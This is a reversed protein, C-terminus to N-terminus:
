ELCLRLCADGILTKITDVDESFHVDTAIGPGDLQCAICFTRGDERHFHIAKDYVVHETAEAENCPVEATFIEIKSIATSHFFNITCPAVIAGTSDVDIGEPRQQLSTVLRWYDIHTQPTEFWQCAVVLWGHQEIHLSLNPAAFHQRDVQLCPTYIRYLTLGLLGDM